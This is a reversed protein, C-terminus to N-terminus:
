IATFGAMTWWWPRCRGRSLLRRQRKEATVRTSLGSSLTPLPPSFRSVPSGESVTEWVQWGDGTPPPIKQFSDSLFKAAQSSWVHGEGACVSCETEWRNRECKAEICVSCNISDHGFGSISRLNVQEATITPMPDKPQWGKERTWDHTMDMLRRAAILADVDAQELHHSWGSNFHNSLRRAEWRIAQASNGYYAPAHNCNREAFARVAPADETFPTSGTQAPDFPANGYWEDHLRSAEKSYGSGGCAACDAVKYFPNVFGGWVEHLPWDFDLAVRKITRGM